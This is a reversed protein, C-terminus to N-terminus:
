LNSESHSTLILVRPFRTCLQITLVCQVNIKIRVTHMILINILLQYLAYVGCILISRLAYSASIDHTCKMRWVDDCTRVTYFLAQVYSLLFGYSYLYTVSVGRKYTNNFLPMTSRQYNIVTIHSNCSCLSCDVCGNPVSCIRSCIRRLYSHVYSLLFGYSYLYTVSVGRKYTNNFPPMTSRQYNIVTIHSNCSCLSCGICSNPVFCVRAYVGCILISRLVYAMCVDCTLLVYAKIRRAFAFTFNWASYLYTVSVGPFSAPVDCTRPVYTARVFYPGSRPM